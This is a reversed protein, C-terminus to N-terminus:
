SAPGAQRGVKRAVGLLCAGESTSSRLGAAGAVGIGTGVVRLWPPPEARKLGLRRQAEIPSGQSGLIRLAVGATANSLTEWRRVEPAGLYRSCHELRLGAEALEARWREEEWLTVHRTREDLAALYESRTSAGTVLGGLLGPGALFRHLTPTPVTFVFAGGPRLLRSVEGLVPRVDPIHELVSNSFVTDFSGDPEPVREGPAVHLRTYIGTERALDVEAPDPDVGVLEWRAGLRRRVLATIRGDGCGLDLLPGDAPLEDSRLLHGLEITRWLCTAPQQPAVKLNERLLSRDVAAVPSKAKARGAYAASVADLSSSLSLRTSNRTFWDATSTRLV